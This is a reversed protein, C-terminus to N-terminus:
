ELAINYIHITWQNLFEFKVKGVSLRGPRPICIDDNRLVLGGKEWGAHLLTYYYM